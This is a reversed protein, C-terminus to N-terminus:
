QGRAPSRARGTHAHAHALADAIQLGYGLVSELPFGDSLILDSLPRGEVLEMVIFDRDGDRAIDYVTVVGPHSLRAAARAERSVRARLGRSM